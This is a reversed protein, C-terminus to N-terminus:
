STSGVFQPLGVGCYTLTLDKIEFDDIEGIKAKSGKPVDAVGCVVVLKAAGQKLSGPLPLSFATWFQDSSAYNRRKSLEEDCTPLDVSGVRRLENGAGEPQTPDGLQWVEVCSGTIATKNGISNTGHCKGRLRLSSYDADSVTIARTVIWRKDDPKGDKDKDRVSDYAPKKYYSITQTGAHIVNNGPVAETVCDNGARLSVGAGRWATLTQIYGQGNVAQDIDLLWYDEVTIDHRDPAHVTVVDGPQLDPKGWTDWTIVEYPAARDVETANRVWQAQQDTVIEQSSVTYQRWGRPALEPAYPVTDPIARIETTGGDTDTFRAGLVEIYNAMPDLNRQRSLRFCNVGVEYRPPVVDPTLRYLLPQMAGNVVAVWGAPQGPFTLERWLLGGSTVVEDSIVRGIDDPGVTAISEYSTGPGARFNLTGKPQAYDGGAFDVTLVPDSLQPRALGSIRAQRIEGDPSDFVRFGYLPPVDDLWDLPATDNDLRVHGNNISANGGLVIPTIGDTATTDDSLYAPIDRLACLSRFADKLSVPGQIEIGDFEADTLRSAWGVGDIRVLHGNTDTVSEDSPIFGYFTRRSAGPYGMEIEIEANLTASAPRPAPVYVTCTGIARNVSHSCRAETAQVAVGGIRVYLLVPLTHATFAETVDAFTVSM